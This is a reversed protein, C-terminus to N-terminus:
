GAGSDRERGPLKDVVDYYEDVIRHIVDAASPIDHIMGSVQGIELEGEATDGDLMGARARGAGLLDVLEAESAGALEAKVLRDALDNKLLRVPIAKKMAMVTDAPGASVAAQKYAAHGSSERTLAFRTGVQIGEAGLSLAAALHRGTAFGGAGLVPVHVQSAVQPLLVMSTLEDRGNHGGAEFGEAVIGDVGAEEASVAQRPTALVQCVLAGTEKIAPLFRKPSGGSLFFIKIGEELAVKVFEDTRPNFLPINVGFPRETGSKAKRLHERLLDLDMSGAGVLGLGGANSVATALKHGSMWVMGGQIIPYEIGFLQTIRTRLM